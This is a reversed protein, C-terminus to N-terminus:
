VVKLTALAAACAPPNGGYTNFYNIGRKKFSEAIARTTVIGAVPFGNGMAKGFTVMDPVIDFDQFSWFNSGVRGM